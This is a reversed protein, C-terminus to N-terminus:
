PWRGALAALSRSAYDRRVLILMIWLSAVILAIPHYFWTLVAIAHYFSRLGSNAHDGVLGIVRATRRAHLDCEGETEATLRPTAALMIGAYHSLRFAWAFKFFAFVLVSILLVLKLENLTPSSEAAFPLGHAVDRLKEGYGLLATAGGIAIASTSAFFANGQGLNNLLIVDQTRDRRLMNQMWRERQAQVAAAISRRKLAPVLGLLWFVVLAFVFVALALIDLPSMTAFNM